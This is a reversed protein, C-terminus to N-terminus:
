RGSCRKPTSTSPGFLDNLSSTSSHRTLKEKSSRHHRDHHKRKKKSKESSGNKTSAVNKPIVVYEESLTKLTKQMISELIKPWESSDSNKLFNNLSGDHAMQQDIEMRIVNKYNEFRSRQETNSNSSSSAVPPATLTAPASSNPASTTNAVFSANAEASAFQVLHENYRYKEKLQQIFEDDSWETSCQETNNDLLQGDDDAHYTHSSSTVQQESANQGQTRLNLPQEDSDSDVLIVVNNPISQIANRRVFGEIDKKEDM